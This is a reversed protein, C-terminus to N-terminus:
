IKIGCATFCVFYKKGKKRWTPLRCSSPAVKSPTRSLSDPCSVAEMWAAGVQVKAQTGSLAPPAPPPSAIATGSYQVRSRSRWSAVTSRGEPPSSFLHSWDPTTM